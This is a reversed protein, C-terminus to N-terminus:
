CRRCCSTSRRCCYSRRCCSAEVVVPAEEVVVPAEEVVVPAEEVVRAEEVVVPAKQMPAPLVKPQASEVFEPTVDGEHNYCNLVRASAETVNGCWKPLWYYPIIEDNNPYHKNFVNRFWLSEKSQPPNLEYKSACHLLEEDTVLKEAHEQIIEFWGRKQSSVGDSM